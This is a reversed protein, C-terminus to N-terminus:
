HLLRLLNGINYLAWIIATTEEYDLGETNLLSNMNWDRDFLNSLECGINWNPICLFMGNVQKGFILHFSSGRANVIVEYPERSLQLPTIKGSDRYVVHDAPDKEDLYVIPYWFLIPEM